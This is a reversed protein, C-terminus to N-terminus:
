RFISGLPSIGGGTTPPHMQMRSPRSGVDPLRCRWRSPHAPQEAWSQLGSRLACGSTSMNDMSAGEGDAAGKDRAAMSIHDKHQGGCFRAMTCLILASASLFPQRGPCSASAHTCACPSSTNGMGPASNRAVIKPVSPRSSQARHICYGAHPGRTV